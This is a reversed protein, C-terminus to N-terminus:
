GPRGARLVHAIMASYDLDGAGDREAQALWARAAAALRLEIEVAGAAAAILDADKRALSLAFRPPYEGSEIAARRREAQAALPTAALVEFAITRSLQLADALALAEALVGLTGFLTSNAVLKAATGAGLGGV